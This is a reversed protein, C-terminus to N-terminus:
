ERGSVGERRREGEGGEVKGGGRDGGECEGTEGEREIERLSVTFSDHIKLYQDCQRAMENVAALEKAGADLVADFNNEFWDIHKKGQFM